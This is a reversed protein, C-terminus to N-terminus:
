RSSTARGGTETEALRTQCFQSLCSWYEAEGPTYYCVSPIETKRGIFTSTLIYNPVAYLDPPAPLRKPGHGGGPPRAPLGPCKERMGAILKALDSTYDDNRLPVSQKEGLRQLECKALWGAAPLAIDDLRVPIVVKGAIV